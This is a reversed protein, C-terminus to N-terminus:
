NAKHKRPFECMECKDLAQHNMYTCESCNWTDEVLENDPISPPVPHSEPKYRPPRPPPNNWSQPSQPTAFISGSQGTNM